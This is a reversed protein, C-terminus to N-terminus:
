SPADPEGETKVAEWDMNETRYEVASCKPCMRYFIPPTYISHKGSVFPIKEMRHYGATMSMQWEHTCCSEM